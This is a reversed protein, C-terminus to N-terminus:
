RRNRETTDSPTLAARWAQRRDIRALAVLMLFPACVAALILGALLWPRGDSGPWTVTFGYIVASLTTLMVAFSCVLARAGKSRGTAFSAVAWLTPAVAIALLMGLATTAPAFRDATGSFGWHIPLASPLSSASLAWLGAIAACTLMPVSLAVWLWVEPVHEFPEDEDDPRILRTKVALAGFNLDWGAGWARPMFLRPDAPNWWRSRIRETTPMRVDYPIGFVTGSGPGGVDPLAGASVHAAPVGSRVEACMAAAYEDAPGLEDILEELEALTSDPSLADFLHSATEATVDKALPPRVACLGAEIASLYGTVREGVESRLEHVGNVPM